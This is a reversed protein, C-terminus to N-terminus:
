SIKLKKRKNKQELQELIDESKKILDQKYKLLCDMEQDINYLKEKITELDQILSEETTKRCEGKFLLGFNHVQNIIEQATKQQKTKTGMYELAKLEKVTLEVLDNIEFINNNLLTTVARNSLNFNGVSLDRIEGESMSMIRRKNIEQNIQNKTKCLSNYVVSQTLKLKSATEYTTLAKGPSNVNLFTRLIVVDTSSINWIIRQNKLLKQVLEEITKEKLRKETEYYNKTEFEEYSNCGFLWFILKEKLTQEM